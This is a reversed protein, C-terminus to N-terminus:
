LEVDEGILKYMKNLVSKRHKLSSLTCGPCAMVCEELLTIFFIAEDQKIPIITFGKKEPKYEMIDFMEDKISDEVKTGNLVHSDLLTMYNNLFESFWKHDSKTLELLM